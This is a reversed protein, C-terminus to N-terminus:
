PEPARELELKHQARIVIFVSLRRSLSLSLFPFRAQGTARARLGISYM